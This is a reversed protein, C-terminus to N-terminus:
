RLYEHPIPFLRQSAYLRSIFIVMASVLSFIPNGLRSFETQAINMLELPRAFSNKYLFREHLHPSCWRQSAM